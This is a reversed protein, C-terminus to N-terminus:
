QLLLHPEWSVYNEHSAPLLGWNFKPMLTLPHIPNLVKWTATKLQEQTSTLVNQKPTSPFYM